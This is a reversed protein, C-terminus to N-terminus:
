RTAYDKQRIIQEFCGIKLFIDIQFNTNLPHRLYYCKCSYDKVNSCTCSTSTVTYDLNNIIIQNCDQDLLKISFKNINLLDTNKYVIFSKRISSCLSTTSKMRPFVPRFISINKTSYIYKDNMPQISIYAIKSDSYLLGSYKVLTKVNNNNIYNYVVTNVLNLTFNVEVYNLNQVVNCIQYNLIDTNIKNINTIDNLIFSNSIDNLIQGYDTDTTTSFKSLQIYSPFIINEFHLFKVNKFTLPLFSINKTDYPRLYVTFNLPNPEINHYRDGSQLNINYETIDIDKYNNPITEFENWYTYVGLSENNRSDVHGETSQNIIYPLSVINKINRSSNLGGKSFSFSIKKKVSFNSM